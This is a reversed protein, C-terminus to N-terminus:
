EPMRITVQVKDPWGAHIIHALKSIDKTPTSLTFTCINQIYQFHPHYFDQGTQFNIEGIAAIFTHEGFAEIQELKDVTAQLEKRTIEIKALERKLNALRQETTM